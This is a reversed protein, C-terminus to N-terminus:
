ADAAPRRDRLPLAVLRDDPGVGASPTHEAAPAGTPALDAALAWAELAARNPVWWTYLSGPVAPRFEGAPRRPHAKTLPVSYTEVVLVEGGPALVDRMRELAAVPDRLHQLLTGCLVLDFPAGGTLAVDLDYVNGEVRRVRSGRADHALRFGAGWPVAPDRGALVQARTNPPVDAQAIDPLDLAVVEAASREEMAFAWFGDFTGVDLCRRGALSAPLASRAFARLDALGPTLVGGPLEITHYWGPHAAVRERLSDM